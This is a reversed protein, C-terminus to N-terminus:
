SKTIRSKKWFKLGSPKLHNLKDQIRKSHKIVREIKNHTKEIKESYLQIAGELAKQTFFFLSALYFVRSCPQSNIYNAVKERESDSYNEPDIYFIAILHHHQTPDSTYKEADIWQTFSLNEFKQLKYESEELQFTDFIEKVPENDIFSITQFYKTLQPLTLKGIEIETYDPNLIQAQKLRKELLELEDEGDIVLKLLQNYQGFSIDAWSKYQNLELSKM